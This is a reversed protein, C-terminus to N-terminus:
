IKYSRLNVVQSQGNVALEAVAKGTALSRLIGWVSHGAAVIVTTEIDNTTAVKSIIPRQSSPLFCAQRIEEEADALHRSVDRLVIKMGDVAEDCTPIEEASDTLEAEEPVGACVYVTGDPRPYIEPSEMKGVSGGLFLCQAPIKDFDQPRVIISHAKHPVIRRLPALEPLWAAAFSSWPGLALVVARARLEVEVKVNDTLSEYVVGNKSLRTVSGRILQAGVARRLLARTLKQPHCQASNQTTGIVSEVSCNSRMWGAVATSSSDDVAPRDVNVSLVDVQRYDIEAKFDDPLSAFMDFSVRSLEDSWDRALFGGARGSAFQGVDNAREIVIVRQGLQTLFYACACGIVGGGCVVIPDDDSM